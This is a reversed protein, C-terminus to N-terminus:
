AFAGSNVNPLRRVKYNSGRLPTVSGSSSTLQLKFTSALTAHTDVMAKIIYHHNAATTLSGTVPLAAATATSTVIGATIAGAQTGIGGVASGIYYAALNVPAQSSTLTFTATGATTKLFYIEFEVEYSAGADLTITSTSGFFDNIAPGIATGNAALRFVHQPSHYPLSNWATTADGVKVLETDTEIAAEALDLVSNATVWGSATNGRGVFGYSALSNWATSGNGLKFRGTTTDLGLEGAALVPNASSWNSTTDRRFQVKSAM